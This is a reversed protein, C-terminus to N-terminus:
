AHFLAWVNHETLAVYNAVLHDSFPSSKWRPSLTVALAAPPHSKHLGVEPVSDRGEITVARYRECGFPIRIFRGPM